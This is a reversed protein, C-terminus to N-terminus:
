APARVMWVKQLFLLLTALGGLSFVEFSICLHSARLLGLIVQPDKGVGPILLSPKVTEM